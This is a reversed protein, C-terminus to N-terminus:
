FLGARPASFRTGKRVKIWPHLLCEDATMRDSYLCVFSEANGEGSSSFSVCAGHQRHLVMGLM